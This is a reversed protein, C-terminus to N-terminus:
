TYNSELTLLSENSIKSDKRIYMILGAVICATAVALAISLGVVAKGDASSGAEQRVITWAGDVYAVGGPQQLPCEFGAERLLITDGGTRWTVSNGSFSSASEPIPHIGLAAAISPGAVFEDPVICFSSNFSRVCKLMHGRATRVTWTMNCDKLYEIVLASLNMSM